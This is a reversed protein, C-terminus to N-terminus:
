PSLVLCSEILDRVLTKRIGILIDKTEGEYIATLRLNRYKIHLVYKGKFGLSHLFISLQTKSQVNKGLKTKKM